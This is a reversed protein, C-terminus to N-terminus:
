GILNRVEVADDKDVVIQLTSATVIIDANASTSEFNVMVPIPTMPNGSGWVINCALVLKQQEIAEILRAYMGKITVSSDSLLDLGACDIQAYGGKAQIM